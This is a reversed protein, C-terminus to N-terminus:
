HTQKDLKRTVKAVGSGYQMAKKPAKVIALPVKMRLALMRLVNKRVAGYKGRLNLIAPVKMAERAFEKDLYPAIVRVGAHKACKVEREVDHKGVNKVKKTRLRECEVPNERLADFAAYGAFLEDAGSGVILTTIGKKRALQAISLNLSGLTQQLHDKQKLIKEALVFNQHIEKETLTKSVLKMKWKKAYEHARALDTSDSRGVCVLAADKRMQRVIWALTGSDIGGSFAIGVKGKAPLAKEVAVLLKKQLAPYNPPALAKM